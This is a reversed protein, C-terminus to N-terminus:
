NLAFHELKELEAPATITVYQRKVIYETKTQIPAFLAAGFHYNKFVKAGKYGCETTCTRTLNSSTFGVDVLQLGCKSCYAVDLITYKQGVVLPMTSHKQVCVVEQGIKLRM